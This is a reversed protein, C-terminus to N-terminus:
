NMLMCNREKLVAHSCKVGEGESREFLISCLEGRTKMENNKDNRAAEETGQLKRARM